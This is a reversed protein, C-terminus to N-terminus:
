KAKVATKLYLIVDALDQQTLQNELGEPMLSKATAQVTAIDRRLIVDEANEARRLTISTATEVVIRGTYFKGAKTVVIYELYRPDVERNPDLIAILLDEASKGGLAAKLDPGTEFGIGELKHCTACNKKFVAKGQIADAKLELAPLYKDIVKQRDVAVVSKLLKEAQQRIAPDPYKKLLNMRGPELQTLLVKKASIAGLLQQVRHKDVFLANVVERRVEPPYSGWHKLFIDPVKLNDHGSLASVAALQIKPAHQPGILEELVPAAVSYPGIALLRIAGLRDELAAKESRATKGAQDFFPLVTQVASKLKIPPNDWLRALSSKNRQLGQGLGELFAMHWAAPATGTGDALVKLAAGIHVEDGAAGLLAALQVIFQQQTEGLAALGDGQALAKLLAPAMPVHASSLIASQMWPDTGDKRVLEALGAACETSNMQGLTFALQFRVRPAPDKVLKLVAHQLKASKDLEGEALRLAQERVGIEKDQLGAKIDDLTLASLGALTWLAHARGPGSQTAQLLKRVLPIAAKDQREILLRQCTMRWWINPDDLHSVLEAIKAKHLKPRVVPNKGDPVIKWIRGRKRSQLNVKKKIDPPLSLPTEIVERYFDAVYIAGEPGITMCVPRFYNDKAAMIECDADARKAVFTVGKPELVDRHILNNAPDCIFVNGHYKKPLLDALYVLPSCASTIFGGPVLETSPFNKAGPGDKRQKTRLVRWAEFPSIRHVKCAAGHDPIDLTVAKVPLFPNRQLYHDPLIIHRLHQSNTNVFWQGWQDCTLGFQGGGTTPQLSGPEAPRFKVGRGRLTVSKMSPKQPSTITGGSGGACGHVWNDLGWQLGNILQQINGLDFGTYLVTQKDAKGKGQTDQFYVIDPANAVLLGGKYPMVSTPFRLKDAYVTSSEFYGDGDKDELVRIKGTSINGTAVGENPYGHMEAVFLRGQEDFAMAVPDIVEPECAVLEVKLGPLVQITMQEERATLPQGNSLEAKKEDQGTLM